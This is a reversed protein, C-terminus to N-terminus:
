HVEVFTCHNVEETSSLRQQDWDQETAVNCSSEFKQLLEVLYSPLRPTHQSLSIETKAAKQWTVTAIM